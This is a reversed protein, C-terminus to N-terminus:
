IFHLGHRSLNKHNIRKVTRGARLTVTNDGKGESKSFDGVSEKSEPECTKNNTIQSGERTENQRTYGVFISIAIM